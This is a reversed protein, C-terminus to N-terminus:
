ETLDLQLVYVSRSKVQMSNECVTPKDNIETTSLICRWARGTPCAPLSFKLSETGANLIVLVTDVDKDKPADLSDSLLMGLCHKGSEQWDEDGMKVGNSNIWEIDAFGTVPSTERGHVFRDRRLIRTSQRLTILARVFGAISSQTELLSWDIWTSENDQCYANNNGQQTRGMEDGALLMPTGQSLLLTAMLNKRQRLRLALVDPDNTSGEVAYNESFNTHHGDRNNEGNASNHRDRYSVLDNLTFGDHSTVMNVSAYPRRRNHEFFECSGHLSSALTPLQAADGRWFRRVTDRYRDNWEAWGGPFRGLQYGDPGIDWPEAILKVQSFVPDQQIADFFGSGLDFGHHERGLSVALDFRFGDIHMDSVWYRLSDMVLQLVRPNTIDLTNGCGSDNVYFRKNDSELRYYSYNDIGRFSLSPGLHNGEATHNYVVDLLVEIGADHLRTVMLKFENISDGSLYRSAPAFYNLTNYGWFNKLGKKILFHDDIFAHVPMLEVSTIGLSKLYEIIHSDAMGAFTGRIGDRLAPHRMTFGRVHTEYIVTDPWRVDPKRDNWSFTNDIVVSKPVFPASDRQDFSLDADYSDIIHGYVV